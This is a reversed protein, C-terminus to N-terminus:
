GSPDFNGGGVGTVVGLYGMKQVNVDSTDNFTARGTITNGTVTEYLAVALAAFEARTTPATYNSQLDQPVLSQSVAQEVLPAAWASPAAQPQPTPAQPAATGLNLVGVGDQGVVQVISTRGATTGDGLQGFRNSRGWSWVTGDDRLAVAHDYPNGAIAIINELGQIQEPNNGSRWTWVTGDDRLAMSAGVNVIAKVNNLNQVQM